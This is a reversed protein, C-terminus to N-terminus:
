IALQGNQIHHNGLNQAEMATARFTQLRVGRGDVPDNAPHHSLESNVTGLFLIIFIRIATLQIRVQNQPIILEKGLRPLFDQYLIKM